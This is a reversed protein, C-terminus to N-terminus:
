LVKIVKDLIDQHSMMKDELRGGSANEHGGGNFVQEAIPRVNFQSNAHSRLAVTGRLRNIHIFMDADPKSKFFYHAVLNYNNLDDAILIKVGKDTELYTAERHLYKDVYTKALMHAVSKYYDSGSEQQLVELLSATLNEEIPIFSDGYVDVRFLYELTKMMLTYDIQTPNNHFIKTNKVFLGMATAIDFAYMEVRYLDAIDVITSMKDYDIDGTYRLQDDKFTEYILRTACVGGDYKISISENNNDITSTAYHHDYVEIFDIFSEKSLADLTEKSFSLDTIYLKDINGGLSKLRDILNEIEMDEGYDVFLINNTSIGWVKKALIACGLGDLDTHTILAKM